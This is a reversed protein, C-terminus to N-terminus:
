IVGCAQLPTLIDSFLVVGDPKFARWPQLTIEVQSVACCFIIAMVSLMRYEANFKFVYLHSFWVDGRFLKVFFENRPHRGQTIVVCM